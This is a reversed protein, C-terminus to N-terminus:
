LSTRLDDGYENAALAAASKRRHGIVRTSDVRSEIIERRNKENYRCNVSRGALNIVVDANGIENTWAGLTRANWLVVRWPKETVKRSLVTVQHNDAKFARALITGLQGSGGAIVIKM